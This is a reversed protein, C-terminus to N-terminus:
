AARRRLRLRFFSAVISLVLTAPEPIEANASAVAGSSSQGLHARWVTYDSQTYITGLGRRWVVYDAMDVIGDGNYDGYLVSTVTLLAASSFYYSGYEGSELRISFLSGDALRGSLTVDRAAIARALGPVLNAIPEDNLLFGYGFLHVESGAAARFEYSYPATSLGGSINVVSGRDATILNGVDGGTINVVSGRHATLFNGVKGGTINVVSGYFADFNDGVSGGAITVQAGVAEFNNGVAGGVVTVVSGWGATFNDGLKGGPGVILTQQERLGTPASGSPLYIAAPGRPPPDWRQLRLTGLEFRDGDRDSFAFPTGDALTGSLVSGAPIDFVSESGNYELGDVPVGDLRFDGGSIKTSGSSQFRDGLTGGLINVASAGYASVDNGISGGSM